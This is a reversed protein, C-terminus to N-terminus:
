LYANLFNNFVTDIDTSCAVEFVNEWTEFSLGLKFKNINEMCYNRGFRANTSKSVKHSYLYVTVMLADHDSLGNYHPVITYKDYKSSDLFVNDIASSSQTTVRTPFSVIYELKYTELLSTLMDRKISDAMFNVNFDGALIINVSHKYILNLVSEISKLFINFDGSPSRYISVVTLNFPSYSIRLACVEIDQETCYESLDLTTFQYPKQVFICVGGCKTYQRCYYAGLNYNEINIM